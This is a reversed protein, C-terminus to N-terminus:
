QNDSMADGVDKVANGVGNAADQIINGADDIINGADDIINGAADRITGDDDRTYGNPLATPTIQVDETAPPDTQTTNQHNESSSCGTLFMSFIIGILLLKISEM